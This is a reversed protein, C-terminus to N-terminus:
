QQGGPRRVIPPRCLLSSNPPLRIGAHFSASSRVIDSSCVSFRCLKARLPRCRDSRRSACRTRESRAPFNRRPYTGRDPLVGEASRRFTPREALLSETASWQKRLSQIGIGRVTESPDGPKQRLPVLSVDPLPPQAPLDYGEIVRPLRATAAPASTSPLRDALFLREGSEQVMWSAQELLTTTRLRTFMRTQKEVGRRPISIWRPCVDRRTKGRRAPPEISHHHATSLPAAFPFDFSGFADDPREVNGQATGTFAGMKLNSFQRMVLIM